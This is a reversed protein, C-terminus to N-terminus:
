ILSMQTREVEEVHFTLKAMKHVKYPPDMCIYINAKIDLKKQEINIQSIPPM